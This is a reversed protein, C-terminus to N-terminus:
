RLVDDWTNKSDPNAASDTLSASAEIRGDPHVTIRAAAFGAELAAKFLRKADIQKIVAHKSAM